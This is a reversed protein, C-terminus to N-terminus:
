LLSVFEEVGLGAKRILARLLGRKLERHDPVTLIAPFDTKAMVMHSGKGRGPVLRFGAKEFASVAERGSIIPLISSM